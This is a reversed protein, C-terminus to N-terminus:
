WKSLLEGNAVWLVLFPQQAGRKQMVLLFPQDFHYQKRPPASKAVIRSESQVEAGSRHLRFRIRQLATDFYVGQVSPNLLAKDRGELERFHHDLQWDMAPVQLTSRGPLEPLAGQAQTIKEQLRALTRTLTSQWSLQALVIQNPASQKCLDLAFEKEDEFLIQVQEHPTHRGRFDDDLRIGFSRVAVEEGTASKFHFPYPNDSYEYKYWVAARLYAYAIAGAPGADLQPPAVDPFRAAMEQHIKAVVGDRVLGAVAYAEDPSLDDESQPARNLREAVAEANQLRIPEKVVDNKLRSWAHQFTACWIASKHLAVPTDLTPVIVTHQLQESSQVVQLDDGAGFAKGPRGSYSRWAVGALLAAFLFAAFIAYRLQNM